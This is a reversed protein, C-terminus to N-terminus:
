PAVGGQVQDANGACTPCTRVTHNPTNCKYCRITLPQPCDKRHHGLQNCNFCRISRAPQQVSTIPTLPVPVSQPPTPAVPCLNTTTSSPPSNSYNFLPYDLLLVDSDEAHVAHVPNDTRSNRGSREAVTRRLTDSFTNEIHRVTATLGAITQTDREHLVLKNRLYPLLRNQITRLRESESPKQALQNYYNEMIAIFIASKEGPRQFRNRITEMISDEYDDTLYLIKLQRALDDWTPMALRNARYWELTAGRFLIAACNVLQPKSVGSAIRLEEIRQLFDTVSTRGDFSVNWKSVTGFCSRSSDETPERDRTFIPHYISSSPANHLNLDRMNRNLLTADNVQVETSMRSLNHPNHIDPRDIQHIHHPQVNEEMYPNHRRLDSSPNVRRLGHQPQPSGSVSPFPAIVVPPLTEHATFLRSVTPLVSNNGGPSQLPEHDEIRVRDINSRAVNATADVAATPSVPSINHLQSHHVIEPLLEIPADILSIHQREPAANDGDIRGMLDELTSMLTACQSILQSKYVMARSDTIRNLRNTVHIIRSQIRSHENAANGRDFNHVLLTLENIKIRCTELETDVGVIPVMTLSGGLREIRLLGRLRSRKEQVTGEDPANRVRLEYSLEDGLLRNVEM